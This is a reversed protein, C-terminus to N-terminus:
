VSEIVRLQIFHNVVDALVVLMAIFGNKIHYGHYCAMILARVVLYISDAWPHLTKGPYILIFHKMFIM